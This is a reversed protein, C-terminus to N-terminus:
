NLLLLTHEKVAQDATELGQCDGIMAFIEVSGETCGKIEESIGNLTQQCVKYIEFAQGEIGRQEYGNLYLSTPLTLCIVVM